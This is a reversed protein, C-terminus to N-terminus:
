LVDIAPYQKLFVIRCVRKGNAYIDNRRSYQFFDQASKGEVFSVSASREGLRMYIDLVTGGRVVATVEKHTPKEGLGKILVTRQEVKEYHPRDTRSPALFADDKELIPTFSGEDLGSSNHHSFSLKRKM